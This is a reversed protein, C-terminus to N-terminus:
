ALETTISPSRSRRYSPLEDYSVDCREAHQKEKLAAAANIAVAAAVVNDAMHADANVDHPGSSAISVASLVDDQTMTLNVATM